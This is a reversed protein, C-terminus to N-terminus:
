RAPTRLLFLMRHPQERRLPPLWRRFPLEGDLLM